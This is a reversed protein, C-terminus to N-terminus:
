NEESVEITVDKSLEMMLEEFTPFSSTTIDLTDKLKTVVMGIARNYQRKGRLYYPKLDPNSDWFENYIKINASRYTNHIAKHSSPTVPVLKLMEVLSTVTPKTSFLVSPQETKDHSAGNTFLIHHLEMIYTNKGAMTEYLTHGRVVDRLDSRQANPKGTQLIALVSYNIEQWKNKYIKQQKKGEEYNGQQRVRGNEMCFLFSDFTLLERSYKDQTRFHSLASKLGKSLVTNEKQYKFNFNYLMRLVHKPERIWFKLYSHKAIKSLSRHFTTFYVSDYEPKYGSGGWNLISQWTTKGEIYNLSVTAIEDLFSKLENPPIDNLGEMFDDYQAEYTHRM